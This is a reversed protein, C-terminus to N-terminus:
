VERTAVKIKKKTYKIRAKGNFAGSKGDLLPPPLLLLPLRGPLPAVVGEAAAPDVALELALEPADCRVRYDKM